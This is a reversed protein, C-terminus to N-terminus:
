FVTSVHKILGWMQISGARSYYKRNNFYFIPFELSKFCIVMDTKLQIFGECSDLFPGFLNPITRQLKILISKHKIVGWMQLSGANSYYQRNNLYFIALGLSKFFFVMDTKPQIFGECSDLFPRFLNPNTRQLKIIIGYKCAKISGLNSYVRGSCIWLLPTKPM